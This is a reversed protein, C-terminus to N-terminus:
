GNVEEQLQLLEANDDSISKTLKTIKSERGAKEKEFDKIAKPKADKPDFAEVFANLDSKLTELSKENDKIVPTLKAIKAKTKELAELASKAALDKEDKLRKAGLDENALKTGAPMYEDPIFNEKDKSYLEGESALLATKAAPQLVVNQSNKVFKMLVFRYGYQKLKLIERSGKTFPVIIPAQRSNIGEVVGMINTPCSLVLVGFQEKPNKEKAM